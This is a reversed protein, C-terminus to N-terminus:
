AEKSPALVVRSHWKQFCVGKCLPVKCKKCYFSARSPKTLKKVEVCYRCYLTRHAPYIKKGEANMKLVKQTGEKEPIKACFEAHGTLTDQRDDNDSLKHRLHLRVRTKPAAFAKTPSMGVNPDSTCQQAEWESALATAIKLRFMRQDTLVELKKAKMTECYLVWANVMASELIFWFIPHWYKFCRLELKYYSRFQDFLDVGGMNARYKKIIPPISIARKVKGSETAGQEGAKAKYWHEVIDDSRFLM